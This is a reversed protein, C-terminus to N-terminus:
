FASLAIITALGVTMFSVGPMIPTVAMGHREAPVFYPEDDPMVIEDNHNVAVKHPGLHTTMFREGQRKMHMGVLLIGSCFPRGASFDTLNCWVNYATISVFCGVFGSIIGLLAVPLGNYVPLIASAVAMMYGDGAGLLGLRSVVVGVVIGVAMFVYWVPERGDGAIADYVVFCAAFCACMVITDRYVTRDMLDTIAPVVMVALLAM